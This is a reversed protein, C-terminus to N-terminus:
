VFNNNSNQGIFAQFAYVYEIIMQIQKIEKYLSIKM